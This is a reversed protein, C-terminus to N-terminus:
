MFQSQLPRSFSTWSRRPQSTTYNPLSVALIKSFYQAELRLNRGQIYSTSAISEWSRLFMALMGYTAMNLLLMSSLSLIIILLKMIRPIMM